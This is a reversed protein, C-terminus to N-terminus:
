RVSKYASLDVVNAVASPKNQKVPDATLLEIHWWDSGVFGARFYEDPISFLSDDASWGAASDAPEGTVRAFRFAVSSGSARHTLRARAGHLSEFDLHGDRALLHLVRKPTNM